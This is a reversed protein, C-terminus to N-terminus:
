PKAILSRFIWGNRGADDTVRIWDDTYSFGTLGNGAEVAFAVSFSTGPGERVNGRSAVKLRIPLAFQTEGQRPAASKAASLRNRGATAVTKAQNALYLAGGYNQKNFESTSQQVFRSAQALEPLQRAGDANRFSTLAVDAEAMASAAEARSALTQLKAMTRVVEDRADDLRTQLEDVQTEKEIVRLELRSLRRELEPDRVTVTERVVRPPSQRQAQQPAPDTTPAPKPSCGWVVITAVLFAAPRLAAESTPHM